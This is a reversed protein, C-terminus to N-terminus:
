KTTQHLCLIAPLKEGDKSPPLFLYAPVRDDTESQFTLKRRLLDGVRDEAEIKIDLPILKSRDPFPGTVLQMNQLIHARRRQWDTSTRVPHKKGADDLYHLLDLHNPYTPPQDAASVLPFLVLLLIAANCQIPAFRSM